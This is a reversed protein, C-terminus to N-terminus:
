KVTVSYITVVLFVLGSILQVIALPRNFAVNLGFIPVRLGFWSSTIIDGNDDELDATAVHAQEMRSAGVFTEIVLIGGAAWLFPGMIVLLLIITAVVKFNM